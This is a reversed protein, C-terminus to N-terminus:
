DSQADAAAGDIAGADVSGSGDAVGGDTVVAPCEELDDVKILKGAVAQTAAYSIGVSIADCTRNPDNKGDCLIDLNSELFTQMIGYNPDTDCFGILRFGQLVDTYLARGAITGDELTWTGDNAKKIKGTIVGSTMKLPFATAVDSKRGKITPFWFLVNAPLTGVVYGDRVYANADSLVADPLDPGGTPTAVATDRVYWPLDATFCPHTRWDSKSCDWPLPKELGPSPYLDIRITDDNALGNYGSLKIIFNYAGTCLACNFADDNLGYKGGVEAINAAAVELRGFTNDRCYNGDYAVASKTAKCSVDPSDAPCTPSSTCVGDLDLGLDQWALQDFAYAANQSGIRMSRLALTIPPIVTGGSVPAPRDEPRPMKASFCTGAPGSWWGIGTGADPPATGGVLDSTYVSCFVLFTGGLAALAVSGATLERLGFRM